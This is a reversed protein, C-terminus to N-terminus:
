LISEGYSMDRCQRIVDGEMKSDYKGLDSGPFTKEDAEELLGICNEVQVAAFEKEPFKDLACRAM